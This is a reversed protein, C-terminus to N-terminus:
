IAHSKKTTKIRGKTETMVFERLAEIDQESITLVNVVEAKSKIWDMSEVGISEKHIFSEAIQFVSNYMAQETGQPWFNFSHHHKIVECVLEPLGWDVALMESINAHHTGYRSLEIDVINRSNSNSADILTQKYDSFMGAFVPIGADHFLGLVYLYEPSLNLELYQNIKIAVSAVHDAKQWFQGLAICSQQQLFAQKLSLAKVLTIVGEIGIYLTAQRINIITKPLNYLPSNILKLIAASIAIDRVVISAVEDISPQQQSLLQDLQVLLDPKPPIQLQNVIDDIAFQETM